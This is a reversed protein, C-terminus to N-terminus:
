RLERASHNSAAGAAAQEEARERDRGWGVGAALEVSALARINLKSGSPPHNLTTAEKREEGAEGGWDANEGRTM